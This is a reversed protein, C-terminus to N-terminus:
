GSCTLTPGAWGTETGGVVLRISTTEKIGYNDSKWEVQNRVIIATRYKVQLKSTTKHLSSGCRSITGDQGSTGSGMKFNAFCIEFHGWFIFYLHFNLCYRLIM